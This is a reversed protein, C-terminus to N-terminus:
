FYFCADEVAAGAGRWTPQTASQIMSPSAAPSLNGAVSGSLFHVLAWLFRGPLILLALTSTSQHFTAPPRLWLPDSPRLAVLQQVAVECSGRHFYLSLLRM